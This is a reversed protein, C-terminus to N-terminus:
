AASGAPTASAPASAKATPTATGGPQQYRALIAPWTQLAYKKIGAITIVRPRQKEAATISDNKFSAQRAEPVGMCGFVDARTSTVEAAHKGHSSEFFLVHVLHIQQLPTRGHTACKTILAKAQNIDAAITPNATASAVAGKAADAGGRSSCGGLFVAAILVTALAAAITAARNHNM